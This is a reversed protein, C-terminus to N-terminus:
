RTLSALDGGRLRRITLREIDTGRHLDGDVCGSIGSVRACDTLQWFTWGQGGWNAAPVRPQDARWHAIWLRYGNNAFWTTNGLEDRWFSPSTYIMPKVGLRAHVRELWARAWRALARPGLGGTVELDLVPLLHRGALAATRVFHDAERVADGATRDPRAFHYASFHIGLADARARNRAYQGDVFTRGETAKAFVFTVGASQASRWNIRGQWHSVDVGALNGPSEIFGSSASAPPPGLAALPGPGGFGGLASLVTLAVAVALVRPVIGLHPM